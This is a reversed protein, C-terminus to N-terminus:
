QGLSGFVDSEFAIHCLYMDSKCMNYAMDLCTHMALCEYLTEKILGLTCTEETSHYISEPTTYRTCVHICKFREREKQREKEREGGGEGGERRRQSHHLTVNTQEQFLLLSTPQSLYHLYEGHLGLLYTHM